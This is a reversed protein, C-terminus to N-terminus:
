RYEQAPADYEGRAERYDEFRDTPGFFTSGHLIVDKTRREQQMAVAYNRTATLLEGATLGKRRQAIYAKLADKRAIKRPYLSWCQNFDDEFARTEEERRKEERPNAGRDSGSDGGSEPAICFSCDEATIGRKVHWRLHNGHEGGKSMAESDAEPANWQSWGGRAFAKGEKAWLGSKVLEQMMPDFDGGSEPAIRTLQRTSLVGGCDLRKMLTMARLDLLQAADSLEVVREDDFYSVDLPLFWRGARAL